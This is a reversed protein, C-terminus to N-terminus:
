KEFNTRLIDLFTKNRADADNVLAHYDILYTNALIYEETNVDLYIQKQKYYTHGKSYLPTFGDTRLNLIYENDMEIVGYYWIRQIRNEYYKALARGRSILQSEVDSNREVKLGLRKLEVIVVDVKTNEVNPNDSFYLVIDPRDADHSVDDKTIEKIVDTMQAESLITRYTM